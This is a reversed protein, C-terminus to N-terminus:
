RKKEKTSRKRKKKEPAPQPKLSFRAIEGAPAGLAKEAKARSEDDVRILALHDSDPLRPILVTFAGKRVPKESRAITRGPENSFIEPHTMIPDSLVQRHLVQLKPDRVEVWFGTHEQASIQPRSPPPEVDVDQQSVMRVKNGDYEFILRVSGLAPQQAMQEDDFIM